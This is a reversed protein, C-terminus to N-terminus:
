RINEPLDHFYFRRKTDNAAFENMLLQDYDDTSLVQKAEGSRKVLAAFGTIVFFLAAAFLVIMVPVYINEIYNHLFSSVVWAGLLMTVAFALSTLLTRRGSSIIRKATCEPCIYGEVLSYGSTDAPAQEDALYFRASKMEADCGLCAPAEDYQMLCYSKPDRLVEKETMAFM